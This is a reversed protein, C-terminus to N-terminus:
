LGGDHPKYYTNVKKVYSKRKFFLVLIYSFLVISLCTLIIKFKLFSQKLEKPNLIITSETELQRIRNGEDTSVYMILIRDGVNVKDLVENWRSKFNTEISYSIGDIHIDIVEESHYRQKIDFTTNNKRSVQSKEISQVEGEVKNTPPDIIIAVLIMLTILLSLVSFTFARRYASENECLYEIYYKM